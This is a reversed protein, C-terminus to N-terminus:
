KWYDAATFLYAFEIFVLAHERKEFAFPYVENAFKRRDHSPEM